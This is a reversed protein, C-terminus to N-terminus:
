QSKHVRILNLIFATNKMKNMTFLITFILGGLVTGINTYCMYVIM